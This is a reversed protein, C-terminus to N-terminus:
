FLKGTFFDLIFKIRNYALTYDGYVSTAFLTGMAIFLFVRGIIRVANLEKSYKDTFTYMTLGSIVGAALILANIFNFPEFTTFVKITAIIQEIFQSQLIARLTIGTGVGVMIAIPYRSIWRYKGAFLSFYSLGLITPIILQPTYSKTIITIVAVVTTNAVVAAISSMEAIRYIRTYKFLQSLAILTLTAAIIIGIIDSM